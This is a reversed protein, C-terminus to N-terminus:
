CLFRSSYFRFGFCIASDTCSPPVTGDYRSAARAFALLRAGLAYAPNNGGGQWQPMLLRLTSNDEHGVDKSTM